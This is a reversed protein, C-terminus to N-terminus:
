IRSPRYHVLLHLAAQECSMAAERRLGWRSVGVKRLFQRAGDIENEAVIMNFEGWQVLEPTKLPM